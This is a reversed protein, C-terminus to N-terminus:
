PNIGYAKTLNVEFPSVVESLFNYQSLMDILPKCYNTKYSYSFISPFNSLKKIFNNIEKKCLEEDFIYFSDKDYKLKEIAIKLKPCISKNM